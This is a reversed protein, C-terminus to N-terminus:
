YLNFHPATKPHDIKIKIDNMWVATKPTKGKLLQAQWAEDTLRNSTPQHFEYQSFVAGRTLYLLGNIEAIVYIEDAMGVTEQLCSDNYTYVDTAIAIYREPTSVQNIWSEQAEIINLTLREIRGALYSLSDFEAGVLYEGSLEKKSMRLLFSAIKILESNHKSIKETMLDNAELMEKNLKLLEICKEWFHTRPEVYSIKQPPPVEGGDGMEAGSPQEIYLVMDHKLGTWASLMTNLDKKNWAPLQIFYPDASARKQLSLVSEMTKNYISKDWENYSKFKKKLVELTDSYSKWKKNEQYVNLLINEAEENGVAAFVDLGKPFPRKPKQQIADREISVLRQLIEGDFTYRGATFLIKKRAQFDRTRQNWGKPRMKKPDLAYLTNRIDELNEPTIIDDISEGKYEELAKFIHTFSLNNEDGALFSIVNTFVDYNKSSIKSEKIAYGMNIANVLRPDEDLYVSASNLWKVCKFYKKLTDTRTYNGRPQFQTYDMQSDGLFDSKFGQGDTSSELEYQYFKLMNEPVEQKEGTLLSLAIGYYTQCWESSVRVKESPNEKASKKFYAYQESVLDLLFPFMKEEEIAQMEKSVHMHLVQLFLDTTIFNPTYDYYNEDYVHFLQEYNAQNIVFGDKELHEKMQDEIEVFQQWNVVNDINAKKFGSEVLYNKKYEERELELVRNIFEKEESSLNIQFEEHWFVPKYWNTSNFHSRLVYDMFLFGHRAVIESRLLRLETFSKGTLDMAYDFPPADVKDEYLEFLYDKYEKAEFPAQTDVEEDTLPYEEDYDALRTLEINKVQQGGNAEENNSGCGYLLWLSATILLSMANYTKKM